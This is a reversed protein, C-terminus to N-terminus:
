QHTIDCVADFDDGIRIAFRWKANEAVVVDAVGGVAMAVLFVAGFIVFEFPSISGSKKSTALQGGIVNQHEHVRDFFRETDM